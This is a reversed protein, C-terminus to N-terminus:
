GHPNHGKLVIEDIRDHAKQALTKVDQVENKLALDSSALGDVTTQLQAIPDSVHKRFLRRVWVALWVIGALLVVLQGAAILTLWTPIAELM